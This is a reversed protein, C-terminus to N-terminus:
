AARAHSQRNVGTECGRFYARRRALPHTGRAAANRKGKEGERKKKELSREIRASIAWYRNRLRDSRRRGHTRSYDRHYRPNRAQACACACARTRTDPMADAVFVRRLCSLVSIIVVNGRTLLGGGRGGTAIPIHARPTDFNLVGIRFRANKELVLSVLRVLPDLRGGVRFTVKWQEAAARSARARAIERYLIAPINVDQIKTQV